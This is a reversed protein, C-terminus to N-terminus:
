NISQDLFIARDGQRQRDRINEKYHTLMKLTLKWSVYILLINTSTATEAQSTENVVINETGNM